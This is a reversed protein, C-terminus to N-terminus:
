VLVVGTTLMPMAYCSLGDYHFIGASQTYETTEM